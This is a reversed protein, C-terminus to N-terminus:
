LYKLIVSIDVEGNLAQVLTGNESYIYMSPAQIPGFNDLVSQVTTSGFSINEEESLGYDKAFKEIEPKAASSVFYLKYDRFANLNERIQEAERQCHDCDPQFLVLITKGELKKADVTKGDTLQIQMAPLDNAVVKDAEEQKSKACSFQFIILGLLLLRNLM